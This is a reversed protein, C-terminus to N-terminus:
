HVKSLIRINSLVRIGFASVNQVVVVLRENEGVKRMAKSDIVINHAMNPDFGTASLFELRSQFYSHWLWGGWSADTAPFPVATIGVSAAQESVVGIGVAGIQSEIAASQDSMYSFLGRTRLVTEGGAIPTFVEALLTGSAVITTFASVPLSASWDTASRKGRVFTNGRTIRRAM